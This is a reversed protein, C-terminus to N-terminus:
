IKKISETVSELWKEFNEEYDVDCEALEVLQNAGYKEFYEDFDKGCKCFHEYDTDGLACVSYNIHSLDLDDAETFEEYFPLAEDPPEGDGWTSICVLVIKEDEFFDLDADAMDLTKAEFGIDELASLTREALEEANGTQTGYLITIKKSESM